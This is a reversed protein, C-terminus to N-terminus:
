QAARHHQRLRGAARRRRSFALRGPPARAHPHSAHLRRGKHNIRFCDVQFHRAEGDNGRLRSDLRGTCAAASNSLTQIGAQAPIVTKKLGSKTPVMNFFRGFFRQAIIACLMCHVRLRRAGRQRQGHRRALSLPKGRGAGRLCSVMRVWTAMTPAPGEPRSS